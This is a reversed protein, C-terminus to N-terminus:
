GSSCQDREQSDTGHGSTPSSGSQVHRRRLVGIGVQVVIFVFGTSPTLGVLLSPVGLAPGDGMVGAVLLLTAIRAGLTMRGVFGTVLQLNELLAISLVFTHDRRSVAARWRFVLLFLRGTAVPAMRELRGSRRDM